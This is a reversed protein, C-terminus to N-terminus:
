ILMLSAALQTLLTLLSGCSSSALRLVLLITTHSELVVL